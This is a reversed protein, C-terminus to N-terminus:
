RSGVRNRGKEKAEYLFKDAELILKDLSDNLAENDAVGISVTLPVKKSGIRLDIEEVSKCFREAISVAEANNTEPLFIIFEEGGWRALVDGSRVGKKLTNAVKVLAIDGQAHGYTDNVFKFRDIDLIIVSANHHNRLCNSWMPAVYEHFARRNNVETLPDIHALMEAKVKEEKAIRFQNALAMALLTADITMGIDIARYAVLSFPIFGWVVMVTISSASLHIFSAILFYKAAKNGAYFSTIGLYLMNVSFMLMFAFAILLAAKHSTTLVALLQLGVVAICGYIVIKNIRPFYIKTSLFRIAFMLGSVSYLVMLLPNSWLQWQPSNPWIYHYGHGTYAMNTVLFSALYFSYLIYRYNKLSLYLLLNYILLVLIAGYLFGYSYSDFKERSYTADVSALYVPIVMPDPTQVRIYVTTLGSQFDHDFQFFRSEIPRESFLKKDGTQYRKTHQGESIFYVDVNDLWSTEISLRQREQTLRKNLVDVRLWAPNSGIGFNLSSRTSATFKNDEYVKIVDDINLPSDNEIFFSLFKGIPDSNEISLDLPESITQFSSFSLFLFSFYVLYSKM